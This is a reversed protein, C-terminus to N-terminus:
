IKRYEMAWVKRNINILLYTINSPESHSWIVQTLITNLKKYSFLYPLLWVPNETNITHAILWYSYLTDPLSYQSIVHHHVNWSSHLLLLGMGISKTSIINELYCLEYWIIIKWKKFSEIENSLFPSKEYISITVRTYLNCRIKM